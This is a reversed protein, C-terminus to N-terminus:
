VKLGVEYKMLPFLGANLNTDLYLLVDINTIIYKFM